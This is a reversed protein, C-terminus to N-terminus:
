NTFFFPHFIFFLINGHCVHYLLKCLQLPLFKLLYLSSRVRVLVPIPYRVCSVSSTQHVNVSSDDRGTKWVIEKMVHTQIADLLAFTM